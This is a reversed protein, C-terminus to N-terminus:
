SGLNEMWHGPSVPTGVLMANHQARAQGVWEVAMASTAGQKGVLDGCVESLLGENVVVLGDQLVCCVAARMGFLSLMRRSALSRPLM